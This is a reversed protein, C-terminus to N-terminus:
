ASVSQAKEGEEREPPYGKSEANSSTIVANGILHIHIRILVNINILLIIRILININLMVRLSQM